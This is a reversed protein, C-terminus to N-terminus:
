AQGAAKENEYYKQFDDIHAELESIDKEWWKEELLKTITGESFRYKIIRAPNGLVVAYPPIDKNVVSGAGIVAGTGIKSVEPLIIANSGIWVDSGIELPNFDVLWKSCYGLVPNFFIGSTGKFGLPHNHNIIRVGNAISSYRGITTRPDVMTFDFCGGHTYMGIDISYFNKFIMRLTTSYFQGGEVRNLIGRIFWRTRPNNFKYLFCLIKAFM